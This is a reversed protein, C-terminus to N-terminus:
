QSDDKKAEGILTHCKVCSFCQQPLVIPPQGIVPSKKVFVKFVSNYFGTGCNVCKHLDNESVQVNVKHKQQQPQQGPQM